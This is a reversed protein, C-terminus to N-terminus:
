VITTALKGAPITLSDGAGVTRPQVPAFSLLTGASIASYIAAYSVTAPGASAATIVIAAASVPRRAGGFSAINEIGGQAPSGLFTTVFGSVSATDFITRRAIFPVMTYANFEDVAYNELRADMVPDPDPPIRVSRFQETPVDHCRECVRLQLNIFASGAWGFQWRLASLNYQFGCRDCIGLARPAFPDIEARGPYRTAM